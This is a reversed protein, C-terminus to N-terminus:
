ELLKKQEEIDRTKVLKALQEGALFIEARLNRLKNQLPYSADVRKVEIEASSFEPKKSKKRDIMSSLEDSVLKGLVKETFNQSAILKDYANNAIEQLFDEDGIASVIDEFNSFDKKLLLYHKGPEILGNYWGSFSGSPNLLLPRSYEPHFALIFLNEM